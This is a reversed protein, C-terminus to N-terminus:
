SFELGALLVEILLVVDERKRADIFLVPYDLDREALFELYAEMGPESKVDSRVVGIVAGTERAFDAFDSLYHDLQALPNEDGNDVLVILGLGGRSLIERMYAFRDQGPTGYLQLMQGGELTLHGYDLAVTTTEKLQQVEDSARVETRIPPIESIAEIATTKGAGTPGTFILKVPEM